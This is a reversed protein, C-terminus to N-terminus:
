KARVFGFKESLAEKDEVHQQMFRRLDDTSATLIQGSDIDLHALAFTGAKVQKKVWDDSLFHIQFANKELSIKGIMHTTIMPYPVLNDNVTSYDLKSSDGEFDIYLDNGLNVLRVKAAFGGKAELPGWKFGYFPKEDSRTFTWRQDKESNNEETIPKQWTGLLRDDFVADEPKYLPYISDVPACGIMLVALALIATVRPFQSKM